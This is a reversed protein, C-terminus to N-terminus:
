RLLLCDLDDTEKELFLRGDVRLDVTVRVQEVEGLLITKEFKLLCDVFPLSSGLCHRHLGQYLSQDLQSPEVFQEDSQTTIQPRGPGHYGVGVLVHLLCRM